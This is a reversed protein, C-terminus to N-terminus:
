DSHLVRAGKKIDIELDVPTISLCFVKQTFIISVLFLVRKM